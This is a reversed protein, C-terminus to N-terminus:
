CLFIIFNVDESGYYEPPYIKAQLFPYINLITGGHFQSSVASDFSILPCPSKENPIRYVQLELLCLGQQACIPIEAHALFGAPMAFPLQNFLTGIEKVLNVLKQPALHLLLARMIIAQSSCVCCRGVDLLM